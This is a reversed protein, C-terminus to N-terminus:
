VSTKGIGAENQADLARHWMLIALQRMMAVCGVKRRKKQGQVIRDYKDRFVSHVRIRSWVAQCLVKRIRPSGGKTIHGKRDDAEGTENSSPILGLHGALKRRNKFRSLDGLETLFIMATLTGVGKIDTLATVAAAYRESQSLDLIQSDLLMVEDEHFQLQRLLSALTAAAGEPLSTDILGELWARYKKTWNTRLDARKRIEHRKLFSRIRNKARTLSDGIELRMRVLERDDRTQHDPIWIDPIRNGALVHGRVLEFIRMADRDDTKQKKDKHSTPIKTPALVHCEIGAGCLEDHLGFGISSAEYAFIVRANGLRKAKKSLRRIMRKRDSATNRLTTREPECRDVGERLLINEDHVDAGIMICKRM